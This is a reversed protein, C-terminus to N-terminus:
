RAPPPARPLAPARAHQAKCCVTQGTDWSYLRVVQVAAPVLAQTSAGERCVKCLGSRAVLRPVNACVHHSVGAGEAGHGDFVGFFAM